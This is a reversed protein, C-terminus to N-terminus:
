SLLVNRKEIYKFGKNLVYLVHFEILAPKLFWASELPSFLDINLEHFNLLGNDNMGLHNKEFYKMSYM